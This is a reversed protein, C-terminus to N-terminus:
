LNIQTDTNARFEQLRAGTDAFRGALQNAASLLAQRSAPDAPQQSLSQVQQFFADISAGIGTQADAFLNDVQALQASRADAASSAAQASNAASILFANYVRQVDSVAVGQGVYNGGIMAGTQASLVVTQRSYGPTSANAVNNGATRLAVYAANLASTGISFIGSM